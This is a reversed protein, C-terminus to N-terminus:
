RPKHTRLYGGLRGHGIHWHDCFHCHYAGCSSHKDRKRIKAARAEADAQDLQDKGDCQRARELPDSAERRVLGDRYDTM